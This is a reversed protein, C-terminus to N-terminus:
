WGPVAKMAQVASGLCYAGAIFAISAFLAALKGLSVGM